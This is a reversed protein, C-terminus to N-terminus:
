LEKLLSRKEIRKNDANEQLYSHEEAKRNSHRVNCSKTKLSFKHLM